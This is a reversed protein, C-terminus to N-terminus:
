PARRLPSEPPMLTFWREGLAQSAQQDIFGETTRLLAGHVLYANKASSWAALKAHTDLQGRSGMYINVRGGFPVPSIRPATIALCREIAAIAAETLMSTGHCGTAADRVCFLPICDGLLVHATTRVAGSAWDRVRLAEVLMLGDDPVVQVSYSTVWGHEDAVAGPFFAKAHNRVHELCALWAGAKVLAYLNEVLAIRPDDPGPAGLGWRAAVERIREDKGPAVVALRRFLEVGVMGRRDLVEVAEYFMEAPTASAPLAALLSHGYVDFLLQRLEYPALLERLLERLATQPFIDCSSKM